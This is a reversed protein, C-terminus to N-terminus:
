RLTAFERREILARLKDNEIRLKSREAERFAIRYSQRMAVPLVIIRAGEQPERPIRDCRARLGCLIHRSTPRAKGNM